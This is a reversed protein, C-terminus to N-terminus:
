RRRRFGALGVLALLAPSGGTTSCGEDCPSGGAEGVDEAAGVCNECAPPLGSGGSETVQTGTSTGAGTHGTAAFGSTAVLWGVFVVSV